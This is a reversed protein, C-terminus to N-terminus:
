EQEIPADWMPDLFFGSAFEVCAGGFYLIALAGVLAGIWRAVAKM